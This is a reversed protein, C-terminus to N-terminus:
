GHEWREQAHNQYKCARTSEILESMVRIREIRDRGGQRREESGGGGM